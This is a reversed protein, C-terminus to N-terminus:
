DLNVKLGVLVHSTNPYVTVVSRPVLLPNSVFFFFDKDFLLLIFEYGPDLRFTPNFRRKMGISGNNPFIMDYLYHSNLNVQKDFSEIGVDKMFPVETTSQDVCVKFDDVTKNKAVCNEKYFLHNHGSTIAFTIGLNLSVFFCCQSKTVPNKLINLSKKM